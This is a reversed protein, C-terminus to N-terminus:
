AAAVSGSTSSPRSGAHIGRSSTAVNAPPTAFRTAITPNMTVAVDPSASWSCPRAVPSVEILWCTPIVSPIGTMDVIAADRM